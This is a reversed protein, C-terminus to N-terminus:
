DRPNWELDVKGLERESLVDALSVLKFSAEENTGGAALENSDDHVVILGSPFQENLRNGVATIGDTNSVRDVGGVSDVITFTKVFAHPPAREYVNYASVGQCSVMIYGATSNKGLILTVGEVDAYLDGPKFDSYTAVRAIQTGEPTSTDPEADYRWLASPEEGLFIYGNEEDTVCGEVQGGSGGTFNRVLTTSLIGNSTTTLSYQLYEAKKNNVFLYQTGTKASKYSCSGYPEYDTPLTQIGGSINTLTGNSSMAFLCLTNDARCAAFALDTTTNNGLSFKYIMDVNNPEGATLTQLLEGQLNFVGLGAGQESKTTTVIRSQDASIPSIWVAPDDGDGGNAATELKPEVLLFSCHLGGWGSECKCDNAGVCEGHGSCSDTCTVDKCSKGSYGAFCDCSKTTASMESSSTCFGSSNCDDCITKALDKSTSSPDYNTNASIGLEKFATELSSIGFQKKESDELAFALFGAPYDTTSGQYVSLGSVEPDEVGSIKMSGLISMNASAILILDKQGLLIYDSSQGVYVALGTVDDDAKGLVSIEPIATSETAKFTYVEKGDDTSFYM